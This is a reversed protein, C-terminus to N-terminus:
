GDSCAWRPDNMTIKLLPTGSSPNSKVQEMSLQEILNNPETRGTTGNSPTSVKTPTSNKTSQSAIKGGLVAGMVTKAVISWNGKENFEEVSTSSVIATASAVGYVTASGLFAGAAITAATTSAAMGSSIAAVASAAAVFGGATAVTAVACAAVVVAGIAWHWWAEGLPDVRNVPNNGCYAFM